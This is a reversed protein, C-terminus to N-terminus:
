RVGESLSFPDVPQRKGAGDKAPGKLILFDDIRSEPPIHERPIFGICEGKDTCAVLVGNDENYCGYGEGNPGSTKIGNALGDCAKHVEDKTHTGSLRVREAFAPSAFGVVAAAMVFSLIQKRSYTAVIM